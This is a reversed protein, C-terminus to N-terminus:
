ENYVILVFTATQKLAKGNQDVIKIRKQFGQFVKEFERDIEPKESKAKIDTLTGDTDVTFTIAVRYRKGQILDWDFSMNRNAFQALEKLVCNYNLSKHTLDRCNATIWHVEELKSDTEVSVKKEKNQSYSCLFCLCCLTLFLNKTM